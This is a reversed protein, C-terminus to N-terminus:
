YSDIPIFPNKRGIEYKFPDITEFLVYERLLFLSDPFCFVKESRAEGQIIDAVRVFPFFYGSKKYQHFYISNPTDITIGDGFNWFYVIEDGEPDYSEVSFRFKFDYLTSGAILDVDCSIVVPPLNIEGVIVKVFSEVLQERQVREKDRYYDFKGKVLVRITHKGPEEFQCIDLATFDEGYIDTVTKEDEFKGDNDCDFKYTFPINTTTGSLLITLDILENPEVILYDYEFPFLIDVSFYPM